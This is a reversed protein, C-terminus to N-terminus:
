KIEFSNKLQWAEIIENMPYDFWDTQRKIKYNKDLDLWIVFDNGKVKIGNYTYPTTKGRAVISSDNSIIEEIQITQKSEFKFKPDKWGYFEEYLFKPDNAESEFAVNKYEFKDAYFSLMKDMESRQSYTEFFNEGIQQTKSEKGCSLLLSVTLLAFLKKIMKIRKKFVSKLEVFAFNM